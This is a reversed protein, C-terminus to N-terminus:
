SQRTHHIKHRTRNDFKATSENLDFRWKGTCNTGVLRRLAHLHLYSNDLSVVSGYLYLVSIACIVGSM